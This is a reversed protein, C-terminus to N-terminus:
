ISLFYVTSYMVHYYYVQNSSYLAIIGLPWCCFCAFISLAMYTNPMVGVSSQVSSTETHLVGVVNSQVSSSLTNAVQLHKLVFALEKM